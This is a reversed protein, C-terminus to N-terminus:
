ADILLLIRKGSPLSEEFVFAGLVLGGNGALTLIANEVEEEILVPDESPLTVEGNVGGWFAKTNGLQSFLSRLDGRHLMRPDIGMLIDVRMNELISAYAAHGEPLLYCHLKGAQHM